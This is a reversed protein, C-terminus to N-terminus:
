VVNKKIEDADVGTTGSITKSNGFASAEDNLKITVGVNGQTSDTEMTKRATSKLEEPLLTVTCENLLDQPKTILTVWKDKLDNVKMTTTWHVSEPDSKGEKDVVKSPNEGEIPKITAFPYAPPNVSFQPHHSYIRNLLDQGQVVETGKGLLKTNESFYCMTTSKVPAPPLEEKGPEQTLSAWVVYIAGSFDSVKLTKEKIKEAIDVDNVMKVSYDVASIGFLLLAISILIVAKM